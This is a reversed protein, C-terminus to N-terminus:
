GHAGHRPQFASFSPLSQLTSLYYHYAIICSFSLSSAVESFYIEQLHMKQELLIRWKTKSKSNVIPLFLSDINSSSPKFWISFLLRHTAITAGVTINNGLLSNTTKPFCGIQTTQCFRQLISQDSM